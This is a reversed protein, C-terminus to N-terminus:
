NREQSWAGKNIRLTEVSQTLRERCQKGIRGPLHQAITSKSLLDTVSYSKSSSICQIHRTEPIKYERLIAIGVQVKQPFISVMVLRGQKLHGSHIVGLGTTVGFKPCNQAHAYRGTNSRLFTDVTTGVHMLANAYITAGHFIIDRTEISEKTRKLILLDPGAVGDQESDDQFKDGDWIHSVEPWLSGVRLSNGILSHARRDYM